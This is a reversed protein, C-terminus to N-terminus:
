QMMLSLVFNTASEEKTYKSSTVDEPPGSSVFLFIGGQQMHRDAERGM